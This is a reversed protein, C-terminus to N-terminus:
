AAVSLDTAKTKVHLAVPLRFVATPKGSETYREREITGPRVDWTLQAGLVPNAMILNWVDEFLAERAARLEAYTSRTVYGEVSVGVTFEAANADCPGDFAGSADSTDIINLHAGNGPVTFDVPIDRNDEVTVGSLTGLLTSFADLADAIRSM